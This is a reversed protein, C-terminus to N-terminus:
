TASRTNLVMIEYIGIRGLYGTMRCDLCGVPATSRDGPPERKWPAVLM